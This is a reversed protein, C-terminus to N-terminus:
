GRWAAGASRSLRMCGPAGGFGRGGIQTRYEGGPVRSVRMTPPSWLSDGHVVDRECVVRDAALEGLEPEGAAAGHVAVQRRGLEDRARQRAALADQGGVAREDDLGALRGAARGLVADDDLLAGGGLQDAPAVDVARALRREEVPQEVLRAAVQVVAVQVDEVAEGAGLAGVAQRDAHDGVGGPVRQEGVREEHPGRRDLELVEDGAEGDDVAARQAGAGVEVARARETKTPMLKVRLSTSMRPLMYPPSIFFAMKETM